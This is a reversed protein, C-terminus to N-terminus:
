RVRIGQLSSNKEDIRIGVSYIVTNGYESLKLLLHSFNFTSNNWTSGHLIPWGGLETNIFSLIANVGDAEIADENICSTYM